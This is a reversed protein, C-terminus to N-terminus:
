RGPYWYYFFMTAGNTMADDYIWVKKGAFQEMDLCKLIYRDSYIKKGKKKAERQLDYPVAIRYIWYGKRTILILIDWEDSNLIWTFFNFMRSEYAFRHEM